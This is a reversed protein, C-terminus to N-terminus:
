RGNNGGRKGYFKNGMNSIFARETDSLGHYRMDVVFVGQEKWAQKRMEALDPSGSPTIGALCSRISVEELHRRKNNL